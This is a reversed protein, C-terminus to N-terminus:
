LLVTFRISHSDESKVTLKGHHAEVISKCISLGVGYSGTEGSRVEDERYFRDFFRNLNKTDIHDATNYVELKIGRKDTLLTVRITGTENSYKIANDALSSILQQISSEDGTYVIGPQVEMIFHKDQTQAVTGFPGATEEVTRSLDFESFALKVNGEEMKSLMLLSKVLKDLRNTQNRISAIWENEGGTMELVDANASIIALPTKIEHGADTIFQKQKEASVIIPKIMRKSFIFVLLLVVILTLFAVICSNILFEKATQLQNRCDMFVLLYGNAQDVVKYKYIGHFGTSKNSGMAMKSYDVADTSSVAAIHSTDIQRISGDGNITVVFYRTQYQTEENMRFDPNPGGMPPRRDFEPFRGQNEALLKLTEDITHNTQYLNIGNIAVVLLLMLLFLSSMTILIFKRQLKKIM